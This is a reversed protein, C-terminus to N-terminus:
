KCIQAKFRNITETGMTTYLFTFFYEITETTIEDPSLLSIIGYCGYDVSPGWSAPVSCFTYLPSIKPKIDKTGPM